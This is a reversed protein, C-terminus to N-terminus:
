YLSCTDSPPVTRRGWALDTGWTAPASASWASPQDRPRAPWQTLVGDTTSNITESTWVAGGDTHSTRPFDPAFQGLEQLTCLPTGQRGHYITQKYCGSRPSSTKLENHTLGRICPRPDPPALIFFQRLILKISRIDKETWKFHNAKGIKRVRKNWFLQLSGTFNYFYYFSRGYM